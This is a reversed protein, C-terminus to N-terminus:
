LPGLQEYEREFSDRLEVKRQRPLFSVNISNLSIQFLEELSFDLHRHLQTFENNLDTHFFSPDDSNVTVLLGSDFFQRIPHSAIDSVVGTRVNSVPCMEIAIKKDKLHKMLEPDERATVGHGIREVNLHNLADWISQPGAAEGAHAVLHLGMQKARQYVPAFPKPPVKDESGGIDVSVINDPKEEILDLVSMGADPGANRVLDIRINSEVGFQRKAKRIGRNLADVMAPFEMGREIHDYASFSAEVYRVNCRACDELMELVIREFHSENTICDVVQSYVSIFHTFNRYQFLEEIDEVSEFPADIGADDIVALLTGPRISGLTHIHLEAKPLGKIIHEM